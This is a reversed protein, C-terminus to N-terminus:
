ALQTIEWAVTEEDAFHPLLSAWQICNNLHNLTNETRYNHLQTVPQHANITSNTEHETIFKEMVLKKFLCYYCM